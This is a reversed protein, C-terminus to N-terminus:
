AKRKRVERRGTNLDSLRELEKTMSHNREILVVNTRTVSEIEEALKSSAKSEKELTRKRKYYHQM